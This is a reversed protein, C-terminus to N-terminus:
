FLSLSRSPEQLDLTWLEVLPDTSASCDVTPPALDSRMPLIAAVQWHSEQQMVQATNHVQRAAEM